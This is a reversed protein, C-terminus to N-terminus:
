CHPLSAVCFVKLMSHLHSVLHLTAATHPAAALAVLASILSETFLSDVHEGFSIDCECYARTYHLVAPQNGTQFREYQDQLAARQTVILRGSYRM